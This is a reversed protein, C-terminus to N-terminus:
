AGTLSVAIASLWGGMHVPVEAGALWMLLWLTDRVILRGIQLQFQSGVRVSTRLLHGITHPMFVRIIRRLESDLKADYQRTRFSM